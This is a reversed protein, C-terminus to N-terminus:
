HLSLLSDVEYLKALQVLQQPVNRHLIPTNADRKLDLIFALASSDVQQCPQWDITVCTHKGQMVAKCAAHASQWTAHTLASPAQWVATRETIRASSADVPVDFPTGVTQISM